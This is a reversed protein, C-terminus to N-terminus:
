ARHQVKGSTVRSAAKLERLLTAAVDDDPALLMVDESEDAGTGTGEEAVLATVDTDLEGADVGKEESAEENDMGRNEDGAGVDACLKCTDEDDKTTDRGDATELMRSEAGVDTCVASNEEGACGTAPRDDKAPLRGGGELLAAGADAQEGSVQRLCPSAYQLIFPLKRHASILVGGQKTQRASTPKACGVDADDCEGRGIAAVTSASLLM